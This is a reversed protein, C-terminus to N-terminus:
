CGWAGWQGGSLGSEAPGVYGRACNSLQCFTSNNKLADAGCIKEAHNDTPRVRGSYTWRAFCAV